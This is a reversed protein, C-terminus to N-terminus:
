AWVEGTIGSQAVSGGNDGLWTTTSAATSSELWTLFHRGVGPIGRYMAHNTIPDNSKPNNINSNIQASNVTTSDVGIGSVANIAGAAGNTQWSAIVDATVVDEAVGCMYDLQNSTQARAQQFALLTYTWTDTADIVKMSRKVRHYYNWLYRKAESDETINSGSTYFSGIYRRTADGSKVLIGDQYALATARNTDDTWVLIEITPTGSNDYCFADYPKGSTATLALSMEASSFLKWRSGSYLSILNGTKPTLYITGASTVDSTTVPLATTLTLRFDQARPLLGLDVDADPMTLTRDVTPDTIVLSTEFDDPTAGEFVLPTGGAITGSLTTVGSLTKDGAITENGTLGVAGLTTRADAASTDDLLTDIFPTTSLTPTSAFAVSTTGITIPDATTVQYAIGANVTGQAVFVITGQLIDKTGDWDPARVWATAQVTYIGNESGDTQNKVLVRDEAVVAIDDITQTGSLAINATTAVKVPAKTGLNGSLGEARDTQTVM